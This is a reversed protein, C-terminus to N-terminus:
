STGTKRKFIQLQLVFRSGVPTWFELIYQWLWLSGICPLLANYYSFYHDWLEKHVSTPNSIKFVLFDM